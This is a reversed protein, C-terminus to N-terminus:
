CFARVAPSSCYERFVVSGGFDIDISYEKPIAVYGFLDVRVVKGEHLENM